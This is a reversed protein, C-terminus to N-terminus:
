EDEKERKLTIEKCLIKDIDYKEFLWIVIFCLAIPYLLHLAWIELSDDFLYTHVDDGQMRVLTITAQLVILAPLAWFLLFMDLGSM